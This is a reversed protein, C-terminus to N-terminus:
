TRHLFNLKVLDVQVRQDEALRGHEFFTHCVRRRHQFLGWRGDAMGEGPQAIMLANFRWVWKFFGTDM